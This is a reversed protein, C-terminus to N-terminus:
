KKKWAALVEKEREASIGARLKERREAPQAGYWALTDAATTALSRFTLGSAVAKKIVTRGFGANEADDPVWVPMDGWPSVEHEALFEAPVWHLKAGQTTIARIGYLMAAMSMEYDPGTANYIGFARQEVMRITWEALDRADIYQVPDNGLSPALVDGGRAIRVPWYTFRDTEDGPGVILGPRIVTTIGPFWTEAERECAAKMPGYLNMDAMLTDRTEAYIDKGTYKATEADEANPKANQAFVSITSIFVYQKVKGKLVKGVDRVWFPVSTPNDICVDWERGELSKLDNISRDGLLEEVEGPWDQKARKGRNFLTVKHGRALAYRVQHPGTFGTGGLILINLPKGAAKADGTAAPSQMPKSAGAPLAAMALSAGAIAGLKLVDRRTSSM